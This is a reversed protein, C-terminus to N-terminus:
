TERSSNQSLSTSSKWILELINLSVILNWDSISHELGVGDPIISRSMNSRSFRDKHSFKTQLLDPELTEKRHRGGLIGYWDRFPCMTKRDACSSRGMGESPTDTTFDSYNIIGEFHDPIELKTPSDVFRFNMGTTNSQQTKLGRGEGIHEWVLAKTAKEIRHKLILCMQASHPKEKRVDEMREWFYLLHWKWEDFLLIHIFVFSKQSHILGRRDSKLSEVSCGFPTDFSTDASPGTGM